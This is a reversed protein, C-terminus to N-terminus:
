QQDGGARYGGRSAEERGGPVGQEVQLLYEPQTRGESVTRRYQSRGTVGRFRDPDEGRKISGGHGGRSRGSWARPAQRSWLKNEESLSLTFTSLDM